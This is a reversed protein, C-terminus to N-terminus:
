GWLPFTDHSSNRRGNQTDRTSEILSALRSLPSSGPFVDAHLPNSVGFLTFAEGWVQEVEKRGSYVAGSVRGKEWATGPLEAYKELLESLQGNKIGTPPLATLPPLHAYTPALQLNHAQTPTSPPPHVKQALELTATDLQEAVTHKIAPIRQALAFLKNLFTSYSQRLTHKLGTARLHRWLSALRTIIVYYFLISELQSLM